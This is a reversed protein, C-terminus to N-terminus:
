NLLTIIKKTKKVIQSIRTLNQSLGTYLKLIIEYQEKKNVTKNEM